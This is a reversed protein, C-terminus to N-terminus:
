ENNMKKFLKIFYEKYKNDIITYVKNFSLGLEQFPINNKSLTTVFKIIDLILNDPQDFRIKIFTLNEIVEYDLNNGELIMKLKALQESSIYIALDELVINLYILEINNEKIIKTFKSM